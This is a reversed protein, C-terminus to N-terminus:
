QLPISSNCAPPLKVPLPSIEGSDPMSTPQLLPRTRPDILVLEADNDALDSPNFMTSRGFWGDKGQKIVDYPANSSIGDYLLVGSGYQGRVKRALSLLENPTHYPFQRAIRYVTLEGNILRLGIITLYQSPTSRYAGIFRRQGNGGLMGGPSPNCEYSYKRLIELNEKTILNYRLDYRLSLAEALKEQEGKQYGRFANEPQCGVGSCQQKTLDKTPTIWAVQDFRADQITQGICLGDLCLQSQQAWSSIPISLAFLLTSIILYSIIRHSFARASEKMSGSIRRISRQLGLVVMVLNLRYITSGSSLSRQRTGIQRAKHTIFLTSLQHRHQRRVPQWPQSLKWHLNKSETQRAHVCWVGSLIVDAPFQRQHNVPQGALTRSRM